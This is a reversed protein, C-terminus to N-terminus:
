SFFHPNTTEYFQINVIEQSTNTGASYANTGYNVDFAYEKCCGVTVTNTQVNNTGNNFIINNYQLPNFSLKWEHKDGGKAVNYTMETGPWGNNYNGQWLYACPGQGYAYRDLSRNASQLYVTTLISTIKCINENNQLFNRNFTKNSGIGNANITASNGIIEIRSTWCYKTSPNNYNCIEVKCSNYWVSSDSPVVSVFATTASSFSTDNEVAYLYSYKNTNSNNQDYYHAQLLKGKDSSTTAYDSTDSNTEIYMVDGGWYNQFSQGKTENLMLYDGCPADSIAIKSYRDNRGRYKITNRDSNIAYKSSYNFYNKFTCRLGQTNATPDTATYLADPVIFFYFVSKNPGSAKYEIKVTREHLTSSYKFSYSMTMLGSTNSLDTNKCPHGQLGDVVTLTRVSLNGWLGGCSVAPLDAHNVDSQDNGNQLLIAGTPSGDAFATFSVTNGGSFAIDYIPYTTDDKKDTIPPTDADDIGEGACPGAHWYNWVEDEDYPNVRRFIIDHGKLAVTQPADVTWCSVKTKGDVTMYTDAHMLYGRGVTNDYLQMVPAVTVGSETSQRDSTWCERTKDYFKYTYTDSGYTNVKIEKNQQTDYYSSAFELRLEINNGPYTEGYCSPDTGELWIVMSLSLVHKSEIEFVTQSTAEHTTPDVPGATNGYIYNDISNAFAPIVQTAIGSDNNIGVVPSYSRQFGASVGPSIVAYGETSSYNSYEFNEVNYYNSTKTELTRYVYGNQYTILVTRHNATDEKAGFYVNSYIEPINCYYVNSTLTTMAVEITNVGGPNTALSGYAYPTSWGLSNYFFVTQTQLNSYNTGYTTVTYKGGSTGNVYYIKDNTTSTIDVTQHTGGKTGDTFLIGYVDSSFTYSYIGSGVYKMEDLGSVNGSSPWSTYYQDTTGSRRWAHVYVNSWSNPKVFYVTKSNYASGSSTASYINGDTLNYSSTQANSGNNFIVKNYSNTDSFGLSYIPGSDRSMEVGPWAKLYETGTTDSSNWIYAYVTDWNKSAQNNEWKTDDFYIHKLNPDDTNKEERWSYDESGGILQSGVNGISADNPYFALRLARSEDKAGTSKNKVNFYSNNNLYVKMDYDTTNTMEFDINIYKSNIDNVTGERFKMNSTDTNNMTGTTPVFVNRGDLSTVPEFEFNQDVYKWINIYDEEKAYKFDIDLGSDADVSVTGVNVQKNTSLYFWAYTSVVVLVLVEVIAIIPILPLSKFNLYKKTSKKKKNSNRSM